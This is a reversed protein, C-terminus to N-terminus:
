IRYLKFRINHCGLAAKPADPFVGRLNHKLWYRREYPVAFLGVWFGLTLSSVVRGVNPYQKQSTLRKMVNGVQQLEKPQLLNWKPDWWRDKGTSAKMVIQIRTRLAVEFGHLLPYLAECIEINWLYRAFTEHLKSPNLSGYLRLREASVVAETLKRYDLSLAEQPPIIDATGRLRRERSRPLAKHLPSSEPAIKKRCTENLGSCGGPWGSL